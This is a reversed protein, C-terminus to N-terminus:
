GPAQEMEAYMQVSIRRADFILQRDEESVAALANNSGDAHEPKCWNGKADRILIHEPAALWLEGTSAPQQANYHMNVLWESTLDVWGLVHGWRDFIKVEAKPKIEDANRVLIAEAHDAEFISRHKYLPCHEDLRVTGVLLSYAGSRLRPLGLADIAQHIIGTTSDSGHCVLDASRDGLTRVTLVVSKGKGGGKASEPPLPPPVAKGKGTGKTSM